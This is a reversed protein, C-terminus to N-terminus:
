KRKWIKRRGHVVNNGRSRPAYFFSCFYRLRAFILMTRPEGKSVCLLPAAGARPESESVCCVLAIETPWHRRNNLIQERCSSMVELQERMLTVEVRAVFGCCV